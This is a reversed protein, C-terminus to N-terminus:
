MSGAIGTWSLRGRAGPGKEPLQMASVTAPIQQLNQKLPRPLLRKLPAKGPCSALGAVEEQMAGNVFVAIAASRAPIVAQVVAKTQITLMMM